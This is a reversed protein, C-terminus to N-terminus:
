SRSTLKYVYDKGSKTTKYHAQFQYGQSKLKAIIAGLRSIYARLCQNRTIHGYKTLRHLVWELQTKKM